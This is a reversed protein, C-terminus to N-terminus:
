LNTKYHELKGQYRSVSVTERLYSLTAHIGFTMVNMIRSPTPPLCRTLAGGVPGTVRAFTMVNAVVVADLTRLQHM